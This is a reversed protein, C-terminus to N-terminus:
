DQYVEKVIIREVLLQYYYIIVAMSVSLIFFHNPRMKKFEFTGIKTFFKVIPFSFIYDIIINTALYKSFNGFTM